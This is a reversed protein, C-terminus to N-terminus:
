ITNKSKITNYFFIIYIYANLIVRGPYTKKKFLFKWYLFSYFVNHLEYWQLSIIPPISEKIFCALELLDKGWLKKMLCCFHRTKSCSIMIQRRVIFSFSVSPSVNSYHCSWVKSLLILNTLLLGQVFHFVLLYRSTQSSPHDSIFLGCCDM